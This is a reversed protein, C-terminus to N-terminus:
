VCCYIKGDDRRYALSARAPTALEASESGENSMASCVTEYVGETELLASGVPEAVRPDLAVGRVLNAALEFVPAEPDIGRVQGIAVAAALGEMSDSPYRRSIESAFYKAQYPTGISPASFGVM